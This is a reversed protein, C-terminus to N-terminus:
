AKGTWFSEFIRWLLTKSHGEPLRPEQREQVEEPRFLSQHVRTKNISLLAGRKPCEPSELFAFVILDPPQVYNHQGTLKRATFVVECNKASVMGSYIVVTFCVVCSRQCSSIVVTIVVVFFSVTVVAVALVGCCCRAQLTPIEPLPSIAM